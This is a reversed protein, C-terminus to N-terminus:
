SKLPILMSSKSLGQVELILASATKISKQSRQSCRVIWSHVAVFHSVTQSCSSSYAKARRMLMLELKKNRNILQSCETGDMKQKKEPASSNIAYKPLTIAASQDHNTILTMMMSWDAHMLRSANQTETGRNLPPTFQYERRVLHRHEDRQCCSYVIVLLWAVAYM